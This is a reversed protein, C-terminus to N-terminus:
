WELEKRNAHRKDPQVVVVPLSSLGKDMHYLMMKMMM